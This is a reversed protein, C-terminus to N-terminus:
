IYLASNPCSKHSAALGRWLGTSEAYFYVLKGQGSCNQTILFQQNGGMVKTPTASRMTIETEFTFLKFKNGRGYINSNAVKSSLGGVKEAEIQSMKQLNLGKAQRLNAVFHTLLTIM